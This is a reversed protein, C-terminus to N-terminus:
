RRAALVPLTARALRNVLVVVSGSLPQEGLLRHTEARFTTWAEGGARRCALATLVVADDGGVGQRVREILAKSEIGDAPALLAAAAARLAATPEQPQGPKTLLTKAADDGGALTAYLVGLFARVDQPSKELVGLAAKSADLTAVRATRLLAQLEAEDPLARAAEHITWLSRMPLFTQAEKVIAAM